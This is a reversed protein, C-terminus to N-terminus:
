LFYVLVSLQSFCSTPLLLYLLLIRFYTPLDMSTLLDVGPTQGPPFVEEQDKWQFATM